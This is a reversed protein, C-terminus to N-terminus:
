MEPPTIACVSASVIGCGRLTDDHIQLVGEGAVRIGGM